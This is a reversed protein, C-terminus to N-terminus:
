DREDRFVGSLHYSNTHHAGSSDARGTGQTGQGFSSRHKDFFPTLVVPEEVAREGM